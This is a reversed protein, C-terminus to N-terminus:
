RGILRLYEPWLAGWGFISIFAGFCVAWLRTVDWVAGAGSRGLVREFFRFNIYLTWIGVLGATPLISGPGGFTFAYRTSMFAWVSSFGLIWLTWPGYGAFFLDVTRSYLIRRERGCVLALAVIQGLLLIGGSAAGGAVHRLTLRQSTVLSVMCGGLLALFLPRRLLAWSGRVASSGALWEYAVAPRLM